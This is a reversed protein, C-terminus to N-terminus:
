QFSISTGRNIYLYGNHTFSHGFGIRGYIPGSYKEIKDIISKTKILGSKELDKWIKSVKTHSIDWKKAINRTTFVIKKYSKGNHQERLKLLAKTRAVSLGSKEKELLSIDEKISSVYQQQFSQEKLLTYYLLNQIDQISSDLTITYKVWGKKYVKDVVKRTANATLNNGRITIMDADILEKICKKVLYHSLGTIAMMRKYTFNYVTSNKFAKIKHYIAIAKINALQILEPHTYFSFCETTPILGSHKRSLMYSKETERSLKSQKLNKETM